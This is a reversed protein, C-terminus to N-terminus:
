EYISSKIENIIDDVNQKDSHFVLHPKEMYEFSSKIRLYIKYDAESYDRKSKLREKVTQDNAKMEIFFVQHGLKKGTLFFKNRLAKKQFTADAIVHKGKRAFSVMKNLLNQYVLEKTGEDYQGQKNIEKRIKDTNLWVAETEETIRESLYSKGTGPLGFIILIM